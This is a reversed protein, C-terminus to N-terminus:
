IIRTARHKYEEFFDILNKSVEKDNFSATAIITDNPNNLELDMEYRVALKGLKTATVMFNQMVNDTAYVSIKHPYKRVLYAIFGEDDFLRMVNTKQPGAPSSEIDTRTKKLGILSKLKAFLGRDSGGEIVARERISIERVRTQQPKLLIEIGSKDDEMYEDITDKIDAYDWIDPRFNDTGIYVVGKAQHFIERIVIASHLPYSNCVFDKNGYEALKKILQAYCDLSTATGM